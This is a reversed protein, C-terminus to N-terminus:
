NLDIDFSISNSSVMSMLEISHACEFELNKAFCPLDLFLQSSSVMSMLKISHACELNKAFCPLDM